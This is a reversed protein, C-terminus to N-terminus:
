RNSTQEFLSLQNADPAPEGRREYVELWVAKGMNCIGRELLVDGGIAEHMLAWVVADGDYMEFCDDFGRTYIPALCDAGLRRLAVKARTVRLGFGARRQYPNKETTTMAEGRKQHHHDYLFAGGTSGAPRQTL